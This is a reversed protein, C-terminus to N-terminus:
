TCIAIKNGIKEKNGGSRRTPDKSGAVNGETRRTVLLRWKLLEPALIRSKEEKVVVVTCEIRLKDESRCIDYVMFWTGSMAIAARGCVGECSAYM